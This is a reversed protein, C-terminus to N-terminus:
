LGFRRPSVADLEVRSFEAGGGLTQRVLDATVMALTVGLTGHGTAVLVNSNRSLRGVIPLGDPSMPRYGHWQSGGTLSLRPLYDAAASRILQLRKVHPQDQWGAIDLGGTLRLTKGMPTVSVHQEALMLPRSPGGPPAPITISHGTGPIIPLRLAISRLLQPTLAGGAVVVADAEYASGSATVVRVGNAVPRLAVVTVGTRLEVGRIRAADLLCEVARSPDLHADDPYFAAGSLGAEPVAPEYDQVQEADVMTVRVGLSRLFDAQRQAQGLSKETKFLYLWGQQSLGLQPHRSALDVYSRSSRLALEHLVRAGREVKVARTSMLFRASWPLIALGIRPSVSFSGRGTVLWRAAEKLNDWNTTPVCFSPTVMGANGWSAEQGAQSNRELLLVDTRDSALNAAIAVGIIGAGIVILDRRRAPAADSPRTAAHEASDDDEPIPRQSM